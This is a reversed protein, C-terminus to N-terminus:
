VTSIKLDTFYETCAIVQWTTENHM